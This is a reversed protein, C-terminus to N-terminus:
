NNSNDKKRGYKKLRREVAEVGGDLIVSIRELIGNYELAGYTYTFENENSFFVVSM